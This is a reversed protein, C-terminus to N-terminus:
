PGRPALASIGARMHPYKKSVPMDELVMAAKAARESAAKAAKTADREAALAADAAAKAADCRGPRDADMSM